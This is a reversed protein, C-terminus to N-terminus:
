EIKIRDVESLLEQKNHIRAKQYIHKYHSRVTNESIFLEEAIHPVDRGRIILEAVETERPSLSCRRSFEVCQESLIDRPHPIEVVIAEPNRHKDRSTVFVISLLYVVFLALMATQAFGFGEASATATGVVSGIGSALYVCGAFIGYISSSRVHRMRAIDACTLMMLMSVLSFLFYVFGAFMYHYPQGLLPLFLFGTAVIPFIVQYFKILDFRVDFVHWLFLLMLASAIVGAMSIDNVLAGTAQDAVASSRLVGSVFGLSAVCLIPRWLELVRPRWSLGGHGHEVCSAIRTSRVIGLLLFLTGAVITALVAYRIAPEPLVSLVLYILPFIASAVMLNIEASTSSTATLVGEWLLYFGASGLGLLMGAFALNVVDVSVLSVTGGFLAVGSIVALLLNFGPTVWASLLAVAFFTASFTLSLSIFLVNLNQGTQSGTTLLPMFSGWITFANVALFLAFGFFRM